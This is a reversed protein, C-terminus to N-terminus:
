VCHSPSFSCYNEFWAFHYLPHNRKKNKNKKRQLKTKQKKNKTKKKRHPCSLETHEERPIGRARWERPWDNLLFISWYLTSARRALHSRMFPYKFRKKKEKKKNNMKPPILHLVGFLSPTKLSFIVSGLTRDLHIDGHRIFCSTSQLGLLIVKM